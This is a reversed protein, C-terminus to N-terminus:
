QQQNEILYCIHDVLNEMSQDKNDWGPMSGQISWQDQGGFLSQIKGKLILSVSQNPELGRSTLYFLHDPSLRHITAGHGASVQNHHVDLMPKSTSDIQSNMLIIEQQLKGCTSSGHPGIDIHGNTEIQYSTSIISLMTIQANSEPNNLQIHAFCSSPTTCSFILFREDLQEGSQPTSTYDFSSDCVIYIM